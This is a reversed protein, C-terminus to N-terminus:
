RSGGFLWAYASILEASVHEWSLVEQVRKRGYEGMKKGREPDDMLAAVAQAYEEISNPTVYSAAEGATFRTEKLDFSVTPKGFAMYEMVKIWTSYDNLPNSPNPDLCIDSTKLHYRLQEKPIFGAFEV